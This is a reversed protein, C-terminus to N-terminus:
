PKRVYGHPLATIIISENAESKVQTTNCITKHGYEQCPVRVDDIAGRLYYM